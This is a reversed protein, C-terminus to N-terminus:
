DRSSGRPVRSSLKAGGRCINRRRTFPARRRESLWCATFDGGSSTLPSGAARTPSVLTAVSKATHRTGSGVVGLPAMIGEAPSAAPLAPVLGSPPLAATGWERLGPFLFPGQVGERSRAEQPLSPITAWGQGLLAPPPQPYPPPLHHSPPTARGAASGSWATGAPSARRRGPASPWVRPSNHTPVIDGDGAPPTATRGLTEGRWLALEGRDAQSPDAVGARSVVHASVVEM